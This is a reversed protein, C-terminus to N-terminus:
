KKISFDSCKNLHETIKNAYNIKDNLDSFDGTLILNADHKFDDSQIIVDNGSTYVHWEKNNSM